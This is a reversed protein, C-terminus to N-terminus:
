ALVETLTITSIPCQFNNSNVGSADQNVFVNLTQNCSVQVQYTTASTTAPSDLYEYVLPIMTGATPLQVTSGCGIRSGNSGIGSATNGGTLKMFIDQPAGGAAASVYMVVKILVKSSASIPTIAQVLGTVNAFTNATVAVTVGTTVTTQLVQPLYTKWALTGGGNTSLAQNASGDAIPLTYSVNGTVAGGTFSTTFTNAPNTFALYKSSAVTMGNSDFLANSAWSMVGATTSILPQGNVTAHAAPLTYTTSDTTSPSILKISNFPSANGVLEIGAGGSITSGIRLAGNTFNMTLGNAAFGLSNPGFKFLGINSANLFSISPAGITGDSVAFGASDIVAVETGNASFGIINAAPEYIGTTPHSAFSLSPAGATGDSLLLPDPLITSPDIWSMTGAMTSSMVYGDAAPYSTPLTYATDGTIAGSVFSTIHTGAPNELSLTPAVGANSLLEVGTTGITATLVGNTAFGIVNAAASYMGTNPDAIFSYSPEAATGNILAIGTTDILAIEAADSSFGISGTAAKYIGTADDSIFTLSPANSAGDMLGLFGSGFGGADTNNYSFRILHNTTDLYTGTSVVSDFAYAPNTKTGNPFIIMGHNDIEGIQSAGVTMGITGAGPSYFGTSADAVFRISPAAATGDPFVIGGSAISTPAVNMDTGNNYFIFTEGVPIPTVVSGGNAAVSLSFGNNTINNTIYYFGPNQPWLITINSTLPTTNTVFTVITRNAEDSSLTVTGGGYTSLDKVLVTTQFFTPVGLGLSFWNTGDTTYISTQSLGLIQTNEGDILAGDPTQLTISAGDSTQNGVAFYFGATALNVPPFNIVGSGGTWIIYKARDSQTPLLTTPKVDYVPGPTSIVTINTDLKGSITDVVLGLGALLSAQVEGTLSGFSMVGWEGAETSNDTLYIYVSGSTPPDPPTNDAVPVNAIVEGDADLINFAHAGVNFFIIVQGVSALTADPMEIALNDQNATVQIQNTVIQGSQQGVVPWVLVYPSNSSTLAIEQFSGNSPNVPNGGFIDVYSDYPGAM